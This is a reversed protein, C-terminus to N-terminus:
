PSSGVSKSYLSLIKPSVFDKPPQFQHSDTKLARFDAVALDRQQTDQEGSLFYRSARTAGRFFYAIAIKRGHNAVYVGLQQEAQDYKGSFYAELGVRLPEQDAMEQATKLLPQVEHNAPDLMEATKLKDVAAAYQLASVDARAQVILEQVVQKPDKGSDAVAKKTRERLAAEESLATDIRPLYSQAEAVHTGGKQILAQFRTKADPYHKDNFARVADDFAQEDKLAADIRPLYSQAEAAHSSGKQILDQFRTKADLFHKDNFEKVAEDFSQQDGEIKKKAEADQRKKIGLIYGHADNARAGKAQEIQAFQTAAEADKGETFLQVAQQYLTEEHERAEVQKLYDDIEIRYKPHNLPLNRAQTLRQKALDLQGQKFHDVGQKYLKEEQQSNAKAADCAPTLYNHIDKYNPKESEIKRFADCADDMKAENYSQIAKQYRDDISQQASVAFACLSVAVALGLLLPRLFEIRRFFKKCWITL